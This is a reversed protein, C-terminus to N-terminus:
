LASCPVIRNYDTLMAKGGLVGFNKGSEDFPLLLLTSNDSVFEETPPTFSESYRVTSSIRVEDILGNFVEYYGDCCNNGGIAINQYGLQAPRGRMAEEGAMVGDIYLRMVQGDFTSAVHVWQDKPVPTNSYLARINNLTGDVSFWARLLGERNVSLRYERGRANGSYKDVLIGSRVYGKTFVRAEITFNEDLYLEQTGDITMAQSGRFPDFDAVADCFPSGDTLVSPSDCAAAAGRCADVIQPTLTNAAPSVSEADEVTVTPSAVAIASLGDEGITIALDLEAEGPEQLTLRYQGPVPQFPLQLEIARFSTNTVRPLLPYSAGEAGFTVRTSASDFFRGYVTIKSGDIRVQDIQGAHDAWVFESFLVLLLALWFTSPQKL